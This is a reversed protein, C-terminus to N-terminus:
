ATLPEDIARGPVPRELQVVPFKAIALPAITCIPSPVESSTLTVYAWVILPLPVHTILFLWVNVRPLPPITRGPDAPALSAAVSVNPSELELVFMVNAEPDSTLISMISADVLSLSRNGAGYEAAVTVMPEPAFSSM